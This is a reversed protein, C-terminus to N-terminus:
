RSPPVIADAALTDLCARRGRKEQEAKLFNDMEAPTLFWNEQGGLLVRYIPLGAPTAHTMFQAINFGRRELIALADEVIMRIATPEHDLFSVLNKM